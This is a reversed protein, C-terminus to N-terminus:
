STWVDQGSSRAIGVSRFLDRIDDRIQKDQVRSVWEQPSTGALEALGPFEALLSSILGAQDILKRPEGSPGILYGHRSVYLWCGSVAQGSPLRISCFRPVRIRDYNPETKDVTLLEDQALWTVWMLLNKSSPDPVPTAPVYGARSVHASVGVSLGNVNVATIPVATASGGAALKRRVQAPAANSGVALVPIRGAIPVAEYELLVQDLGRDEEESLRVRWEGLPRTRSPRVDLVNIETVLAASGGPAVGPYTLPAAIPDLAGYGNHTVEAAPTGPPRELISIEEKTPLHITVNAIYPGACIRDPVPVRTPSWSTTRTATVTRGPGTMGDQPARTLTVPPSRSTACYTSRHTRKAEEPHEAVRTANPAPTDSM